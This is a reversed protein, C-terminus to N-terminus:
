QRDLPTAAGELEKGKGVSGAIDILHSPCSLASNYNHPMLPRSTCEKILLKTKYLEPLHTVLWRQRVLSWEILKKSADSHDGRYSFIITTSYRSRGDVNISAAIIRGDPSVVAAANCSAERILNGWILYENKSVLYQDGPWEFLISFYDYLNNSSRDINTCKFVDGRGVRSGRFFTAANFLVANHLSAINVKTWNTPTNVFWQPAISPNNAVRAMANNMFLSTLLVLQFRFGFKSTHM